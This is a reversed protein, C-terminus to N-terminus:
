YTCYLKYNSVALKIPIMDSIFIPLFESLQIGYIPFHELNFLKQSYGQGVFILCM